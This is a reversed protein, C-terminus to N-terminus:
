PVGSELCFIYAVHSKAAFRVILDQVMGAGLSRSYGGTAYSGASDRSLERSLHLYRKFSPGGVHNTPLQLAEMGVVPLGSFTFSEFAATRPEARLM